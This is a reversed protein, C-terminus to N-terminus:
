FFSLAADVKGRFYGALLGASIGVAYATVTAATAVVVVTRAGYILRSLVDRGLSDTGLWFVSGDPGHAGPSLLPIMSHLPDYPALVGSLLAVVLWGGWLFAGVGATPRALAKLWNM